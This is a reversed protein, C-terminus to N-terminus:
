EQNCCDLTGALPVTEDQNTHHLQLARIVAIAVNGLCCRGEPNADECHCLGAEIKNSIVEEFTSKGTEQIERQIDEITYGFCYCVPRPAEKEKLGVRIKLSEKQFVLDASAAYYVVSCDANACFLYDGDRINSLSEAKMLAQVTFIQVTRGEQECIPCRSKNIERVM